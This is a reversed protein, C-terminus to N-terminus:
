KFYDNQGTMIFSDDQGTMSFNNYDTLVSTRLYINNIDKVLVLAKDDRQYSILKYKGWRM